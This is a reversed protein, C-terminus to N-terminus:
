REATTPEGLDELMQEARRTAAEFQDEFDKMRAKPERYYATLKLGQIFLRNLVRGWFRMPRDFDFLLIVREQDTDNFVEHDYTDDFVLTKGEEWSYRRDELRMYCHERREPVMLGLHCRLIVPTRPMPLVVVARM